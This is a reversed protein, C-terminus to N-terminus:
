KTTKKRKRSPKKEAGTSKKVSKAATKKAKKTEKKGRVETIKASELLDKKKALVTMISAAAISYSCGFAKFHIDAIINNKIISHFSILIDSRLSSDQGSTNFRALEGTNQPNEFHKKFISNPNKM